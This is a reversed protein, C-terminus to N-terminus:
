PQVRKKIEKARKLLNLRDKEERSVRYSERIKQISKNHTFDDMCNKELFLGTEKPFKIYCVSVLWATGMKVYYGDHRINNCINLIEAIHKEDIYHALLAVVLFRLEYEETSTRFKLLYFYWFDPEKQMFKFSMTCTDCVAWNQIKPIFSDLYRVREEREMAACGIVLGQLMIEEHFSELTIETAAENLYTRFDGRAIEKALQRLKPIRIGLVGKVGPLLNESFKKYDEEAMKLLRERITTVM